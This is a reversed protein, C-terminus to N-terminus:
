FIVFKGGRGSMLRLGSVLMKKKPRIWKVHWLVMDYLLKNWKSLKDYVSIFTHSDSDPPTDHFGNKIDKKGWFIM